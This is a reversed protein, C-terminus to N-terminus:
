EDEEDDDFYDESELEEDDDYDGVELEEEEEIPGMWGIEKRSNGKEDTGDKLEAAIMVDGTNRWRGIKKINGEEDTMTGNAFEKGSVGLADLFPVYRFTTKEMIPLFAMLFYRSYKKEEKRSSRPVLELGIRLQPNKDRTGAVSKLVKVQWEYVGNPPIPGMYPRYQSDRDFEDVDSPSIGWTVKPM